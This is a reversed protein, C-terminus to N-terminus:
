KDAHTKSELFCRRQWFPLKHYRSEALYLQHRLSVYQNFQDFVM